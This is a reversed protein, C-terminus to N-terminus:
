PTFYKDIHRSETTRFSAHGYVGKRAIQLVRHSIDTGIIEIQWDRYEPRDLLLM